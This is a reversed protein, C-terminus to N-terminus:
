LVVLQTGYRTNILQAFRQALIAHTESSPHVGDFSILSGFFNPAAFPATPGTPPVPCSLAVAQQIAAATTASALLQCKRIRQFRGQADREQLFGGLITNPDVYIWNNAQAAAQIAANFQGVRARVVAQEQTDLLLAGRRPDGVPYANPDCNIEPFNANSVIQFSVMNAALPNPQGLTTIPSCNNNVPKGQFNGAPDRSAYFYAGPQILPAALVADVVGILMAGQPQEAQIAAVLANLSTQFSSLRTLTSDAGAAAPGLNGGLAAALADNNGIWVSVFTPDAEQMAQVQSRGGTLLNYLVPSAAGPFTLLDAIRAGPVAFNGMQRAQGAATTDRLACAPAGAPPSGLPSTMPAPCGPRALLPVGFNTAGARQALLVPYARLQLSDVIGNSQFGATISNGLAVYRTFLRGGNAPINPTSILEEGDGVCASLALLAALAAFLRPTRRTRPTM